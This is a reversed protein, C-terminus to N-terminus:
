EEDKWGYGGGETWIERRGEMDVEKWGYRGGEM